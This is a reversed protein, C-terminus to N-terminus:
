KNRIKDKVAFNVGYHGVKLKVIKAGCAIAFIQHGLGISFLPTKGLLTKVTVLTQEVNAPHGPGNSIIVGDPKLRLISEASYNFPVVTVHCDRKTLEHLISHKMGLDVVVVRRGQGPVIYPKTISTEKVPLQIPKEMSLEQLASEITCAGDTIMGRMTGKERILRTLMRTDIGSIGPIDHEQLFTHLSQESRFNSPEDSLEKVIMGRIYPTISEFDDRNIGYGGIFPYTMVAIKGYYNPDSIVEQYGTM